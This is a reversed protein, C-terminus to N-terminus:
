LVNELLGEVVNFHTRGIRLSALNVKRNNPPLARFVGQYHLSTLKHQQITNTDNKNNTTNKTTIETLAKQCGRRNQLFSPVPTCPSKCHGKIKIRLTHLTMSKAQLQNTKQFSSPSTICNTASSLPNSSFSTSTLNSITSTTTLTSLFLKEYSSQTIKALSDDTGVECCSFWWEHHKKM